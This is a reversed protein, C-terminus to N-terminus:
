ARAWCGPRAPRWGCCRAARCGCPTTCRASGLTGSVRQARGTGSQLAQRVEPRNAHNEMGAAPERDDFLVTGDPAILTIRGTYGRVKELYPQGEAEMGAALYYGKAALDDWNDESTQRYVLGVVCAGLLVVSGLAALFISWFIRRRM